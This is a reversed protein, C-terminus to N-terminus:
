LENVGEKQKDIAERSALENRTDSFRGFDDRPQSKILQNNLMRKMEGIVSWNPCSVPRWRHQADCDGQECDHLICLSIIRRQWGNIQNSRSIQIIRAPTIDTAEKEWFDSKKCLANIAMDMDVKWCACSEQPNRRGRSQTFDRCNDLVNSLSGTCIDVYSNLIMRILAASYSQTM